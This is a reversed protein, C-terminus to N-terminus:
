VHARGIQKLISRNEMFDGIREKKVKDNALVNIIRINRIADSTSATSTFGVMFNTRRSHKDPLTHGYASIIHSDEWEGVFSNVRADTSQAKEGKVIFDGHEEIYENIRFTPVEVRVGLTVGGDKKELDLFECLKAIWEISNKGTAIVCNKGHYCGSNTKIIFIGNKEEILQAETQFAVDAKSSISEFLYQALNKGIKEPMRCFKNQNKEAFIKLNRQSSIKQILRFVEKVTKDNSLCHDELELFDMTFLARGFWGATLDRRRVLDLGKEIILVSLGKSIVTKAALVGAPGAGIIILDYIKM